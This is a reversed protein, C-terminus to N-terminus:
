GQAVVLVDRVLHIRRSDRGFKNWVNSAFDVSKGYNRSAHLPLNLLRPVKKCM